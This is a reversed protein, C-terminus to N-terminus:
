NRLTQINSKKSNTLKPASSRTIGIYEQVLPVRRASARRERQPAGGKGRRLAPPPLDGRGGPLRRVAPPPGGTGGLSAKFLPGRLGYAGALAELDWLRDGYNSTSPM